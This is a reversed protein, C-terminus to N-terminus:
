LPKDLTYEALLSGRWYQNEPDAFFVKFLDLSRQRLVHPILTLNMSSYFPNLGSLDVNTGGGMVDEYGYIIKRIGNVILTSFCMLCPELTSYVVIEGLEKGPHRGVLDRLAMIEAHDIENAESGSHVRRGTAVVHGDEVLVCGVPFERQALAEEALTLAQEMFYEHSKM